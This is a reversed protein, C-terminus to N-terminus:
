KNEEPIAHEAGWRLAGKGRVLDETIEVVTLTYEPFGNEVGALM